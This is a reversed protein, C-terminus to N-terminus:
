ASGKNKSANNFTQLLNELDSLRIDLHIEGRDVRWLLMGPMKNNRDRDIQEWAQHLAIRAKARKCEIHWGPVGVVDPSDFGGAYQVGRRTDFGFQKLFNACELEFVKGKRKSNIYKSRNSVKKNNTDNNTHM